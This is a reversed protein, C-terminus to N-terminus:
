QALRLAYLDGMVWQGREKRIGCSGSYEINMKHKKALARILEQAHAYRGSPRLKYGADCSEVSFLFYAGPLAHKRVALFVPNLDGLYVFVDAAVFLDYKDASNNLSEVIEGVLLRNYINKIKAEQIMKPSLDVGTMKDAMAKFEAGSLGTGCGMDIVHRFRKPKKLVGDLVQRLLKPTKYELREVLHRDFGDYSDFLSKVYEAPASAPTEGKLAALLHKAATNSPDLEITRQYTALAEKTKGQEEFAGALNFCAQSHKPNLAIARQFAATAEIIKGGDKLAIGLNAFADAYDPNLQIAKGYAAIAERLKSQSKLAIGLNNYAQFCDPDCAIARKFAEVAQDAHGQEKLALGLNNHAKDYNPDCQIARRFCDAAAELDNKEKFLIGLNYHAKAYKPDLKITKRLLAIAQDVKGLDGLVNALNYLTDTRTPEISLAKEMMAVAQDLKDMQYLLVGFLHLAEANEPEGKLAQTYLTAASKLNGDQHLQLAQSLADRAPHKASM